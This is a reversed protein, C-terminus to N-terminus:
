LLWLQVQMLQELQCTKEFSEQVRVINEVFADEYHDETNFAEKLFRSTNDNNITNSIIYVMDFYSQGYMSENLLLNSILTSKGTKVPSVMLVLAPPQPLHPHLQKQKLFPPDKVKFVKPVESYDPETNKKKDDM